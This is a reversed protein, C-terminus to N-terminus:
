ARDGALPLTVTVTTGVGVTSRIALTGRHDSVIREVIALGLGSGGAGASHGRFFRRTVDPLESEPIGIGGDEVEIMLVADTARVRLVLRRASGAYRIANDVLNSMMLRISTQDAWASPLAPPVDRHVQFGGTTLQPGFEDLVEDIITEPAIAEFQYLETVDTVRAYALLNDVLRTLRKAENVSVRAFRQSMELTAPEGSAFTEGVMRITALPTKLEHTVTAVFSSRMDALRTTEKVAQVMVGYTAVLLVGAAFALGLAGRAGAAAAILSPEESVSAEARWDRGTEATPDIGAVIPDYFAVQFARPSVIGDGAARSAPVVVGGQEDYVALAIGHSIGAIRGVQATLDQFYHQRVWDLNVLFGFAGAVHERYPDGYTILMVAQYRVGGIRLNAISFRRHRAADGALRDAVQAAIAPAATTVVPLHRPATPPLWAPHRGSRSYFVMSAPTATDQWAIFVEPYPYRAFGSTVRNHLDSPEDLRAPALVNVQVGRMDRTFATVLLDVATQARRDALMQASSEWATIARYCLLILTVVALGLAMFGYPGLVTRMWPHSPVKM